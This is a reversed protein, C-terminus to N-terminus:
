EQIFVICFGKETKKDIQAQCTSYVRIYYLVLYLVSSYSYYVPLASEFLAAPPTIAASRPKNFPSILAFRFFHSYSKVPDGGTVLPAHM